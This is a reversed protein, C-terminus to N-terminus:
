RKKLLNRCHEVARSYRKRCADQEIGYKEAIEEYTLCAQIRLILIEREEEKLGTPLSELLHHLGDDQARLERETEDLSQERQFYAKRREQRTLNELARYLWARPKDGGRFLDEAKCCALLFVNQVIDKALEENRLRRYTLQVMHAAYREYLAVLMRNQSETM